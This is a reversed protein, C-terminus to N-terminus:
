TDIIKKYVKLYNEAMIKSTFRKEVTKRCNKRNVIDINDVISKAHNVNNALFGDHEDTIIESMSGKNFAIAPTGCAMSEIISLGFPENFNIPHLIAKAEGLLKDRVEPGVVGIYEVEGKRLNSQVFKKYYNV